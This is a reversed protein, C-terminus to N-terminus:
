KNREMWQTPTENYLMRFYRYFTQISGCGCQIAINQVVINEKPISSMLGIAYDLRFRNVYDPFNCGKADKIAKSVYTRNTGVHEALSVLTLNQDLFLKDNRMVADIRDMLSPTSDTNIDAPDPIVQGTNSDPMLRIDDATFEIRMFSRILMLVFLFELIVLILALRIDDSLEYVPIYTVVVCLVAALITLVYMGRLRNVKCSGAWSHYDDLMRFYARLRLEGYVMVTLAQISVFLRFIRIGTISMWNYALSQEIRIDQGFVLNSIYAHREADDMILQATILMAGYFVAPIFALANLTPTRRAITLRNLFVFFVPACFPLLLRFMFDGGWSSHTVIYPNFYQAYLTLCIVAFVLVSVMYRRMSKSCLGKSCLVLATIIVAVSPMNYLIYVLTNM